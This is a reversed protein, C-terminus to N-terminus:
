LYGTVRWFGRWDGTLAPISNIRLNTTASYIGNYTGGAIKGTNSMLNIVGSLDASGPAYSTSGAGLVPFGATAANTPIIDTGPISAAPSAQNRDLQRNACNPTTAGFNAAVPDTLGCLEGTVNWDNSAAVVETVVSVADVTSDAFAAGGVLNFPAFTPGNPVTLTRGGVATTTFTVGTDTQAAALPAFALSMVAVIAASVAVRARQLVKGKRDVEL